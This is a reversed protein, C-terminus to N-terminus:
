ISGKTFLFHKLHKFLRLESLVYVFKSLLTFSVTIHNLTLRLSLCHIQFHESLWPEWRKRTCWGKHVWLCLSGWSHPWKSGVGRIRCVCVGGVLADSFAQLSKQNDGSPALVLMWHTSTLYCSFFSQLASTLFDQVLRSSWLVLIM